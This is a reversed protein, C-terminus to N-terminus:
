SSRFSVVFRRLSSVVFRRFSSAVFRLFSSFCSALPLYMHGNFWHTLIETAQKSFNRRHRKPLPHAYQRQLSEIANHFSARLQTRVADFKRRVADNKMKVEEETVPRLQSQEDLMANLRNLFGDQVRALHELENNYEHKYANM